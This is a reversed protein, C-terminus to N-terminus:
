TNNLLMRTSIYTHLAKDYLNPIFKGLDPNFSFRFRKNFNLLTVAQCSKWKPTVESNLEIRNEVMDYRSYILFEGSQLAIHKPQIGPNKRNKVASLYNIISLALFLSYNFFM